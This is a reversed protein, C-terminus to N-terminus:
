LIVAATRSCGPLTHSHVQCRGPWSAAALGKAYAAPLTGAAVSAANGRASPRSEAAEFAATLAIALAANLEQHSCAVLVSNM